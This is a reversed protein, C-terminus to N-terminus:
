SAVPPLLRQTVAEPIAKSTKRGLSITAVTLASLGRNSQLEDRGFADSTSRRTTDSSKDARVGCRSELRVTGLGANIVVKDAIIRGFPSRVYRRVVFYYVPVNPIAYIQPKVRKVRILRTEFLLKYQRGASVSAFDLYRLLPILVRLNASSPERSM